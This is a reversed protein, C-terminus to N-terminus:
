PLFVKGFLLEDIKMSYEGLFSLFYITLVIFVCLIVHYLLFLYFNVFLVIFLVSISHFTDPLSYCAIPYPMYYMTLKYLSARYKCDPDKGFVWGM